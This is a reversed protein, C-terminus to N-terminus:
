KEGLSYSNEVYKRFTNKGNKDLLPAASQQTEYQKKAGYKIPASPYPKDLKESPHPRVADAGKRCTRANLPPSAKKHLGLRLYNWHVKKRGM